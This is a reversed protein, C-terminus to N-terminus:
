ADVRDVTFPTFDTPYDYPSVLIQTASIEPQIRVAHASAFGAAHLGGSIAERNRWVAAAATEDPTDCSWRAEHAPLPVKSSDIYVLGDRVSSSGWHGHNVGWDGWHESKKIGWNLGGYVPHVGAGPASPGVDSYGYLVKELPARPVITVSDSPKTNAHATFWGENDPHGRPQDPSLTM